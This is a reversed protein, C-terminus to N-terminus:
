DRATDMRIWTSGYDGSALIHMDPTLTSAEASYGIWHITLATLILTCAWCAAEGIMHHRARFFILCSVAVCACKWMGLLWPSNYSMVLRAIPNAEGMGPGMVHTLTMYLDAMSMLVIGAMLAFVRAARRRHSVSMGSDISGVLASTRM